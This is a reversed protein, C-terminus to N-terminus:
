SNYRSYRNTLLIIINKRKKKKIYEVIEVVNDWDEPGNIAM